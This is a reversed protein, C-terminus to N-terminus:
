SAGSASEKGQGYYAGRGHKRLYHKDLLAQRVPKLSPNLALSAAAMEAVYELIVSTHVADAADRGWTFPGHSAVLVAPMSLYDLKGFAEVIQAGTEEEYDRAIQADTIVATCPVEGRFYDAHTTGFCPLARRAQAWSTAARSHTHVVGGIGPFARYLVLHTKTDSSPNLDGEVRRGELDVLVMTEPTLRDYSVGSPKIAVIGLDRDVGSVNGFTDVVLGARVLDLNARCVAERLGRTREADGM